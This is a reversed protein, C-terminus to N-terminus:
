FDFCIPFVNEGLTETMWSHLIKAGATLQARQSDLSTIESTPDKAFMNEAAVNDSESKTPAITGLAKAKNMTTNIYDALITEYQKVLKDYKTVSLSLHIMAGLSSVHTKIFTNLTKIEFDRDQPKKYRTSKELKLGIEWAEIQGDISM